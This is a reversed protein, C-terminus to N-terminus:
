ARNREVLGVGPVARGLAVAVDKVWEWPGRRQGHMGANFYEWGMVGGFKDGFRNTLQNLIPVLEHVERHQHGNGPNTLVGMVLREPMWGVQVMREYGYPTCPDGWGNYMQVNYWDVLRGASSSELEIYDFGSLNRRTKITQASCLAATLPDATALSSANLNRKTLGEFVRHRPLMAGYVPALSIIFDPGMNNRLTQILRQITALSTVEEVDLDLGDLHFSRVM